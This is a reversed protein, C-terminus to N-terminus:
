ETLFLQCNLKFAVLFILAFMLMFNRRPVWRAPVEKLLLDDSMIQHVTSFTIGTTDAVHTITM